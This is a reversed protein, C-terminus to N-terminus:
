PVAAANRLFDVATHLRPGPTNVEESLIVDDQGNTVPSLTASCYHPRLDVICSM